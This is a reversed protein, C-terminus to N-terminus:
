VVSKRDRLAERLLASLSVGGVGELNPQRSELSVIHPHLPRIETVDEIVIIREHSPAASLLASLLTTKGSGAAGTILLNKRERVATLLVVKQGATIMGRGTLVDITYNNGAPIRVSITTGASALPPLMAHVRIGNGLRVDVAPNVEDIHRGGRAILRVALARVEAEGATWGPIRETGAGRDIWLGASGNVFLDSVGKIQAFRTLQGLLGPSVIRYGTDEGQGNASACAVTENQTTAYDLFPRTSEGNPTNAQEWSPIAIFTEVAM